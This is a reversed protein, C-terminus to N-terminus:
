EEKKKKIYNEKHSFNKETSQYEKQIMEYFFVYFYLMDDMEGSYSGKTYQHIEKLTFYIAEITALYEEGYQQYRWFFTKQNPIKIKKMKKIREDSAISKSQHWTSDIFVLYKISDFTKKEIEKEKPQILEEISVAEKSPYLIVCNDQTLYDPIKPYEYIEVDYPALIKAHIATSKSKHEKPHQIVIVKLPLKLNPYLKPDGMPIMCDYCFYKRSKKCKPCKIKELTNLYSFDQSLKLKEMLLQNTKSGIFYYNKVFPFSTKIKRIKKNISHIMWMIKPQNLIYLLIETKTTKNEM